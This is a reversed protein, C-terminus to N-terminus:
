KDNKLISESSEESAPIGSELHALVKEMTKESVYRIANEDYKESKSGLEAKKSEIVHVYRNLKSLYPARNKDKRLYEDRHRSLCGAVMDALEIGCILSSEGFFPTPVINRLYDQGEKHKYLFQTFQNSLCGDMESGQSDYVFIAYESPCNNDIFNSVKSLIWRQHLPLLVNQPPLLKSPRRAVVAVIKLAEISPLYTSFFREVLEVKWGGASHRLLKSSKLEYREPDVNPPCLERKFLLLKRAVDEMSEEPVIVGAITPNEIDDKSDLRGSEDLFVLM